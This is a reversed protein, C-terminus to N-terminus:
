KMPKKSRLGLIPGIWISYMCKNCTIFGLSFSFLQGLLFIFGFVHFEKPLYIVSEVFINKLIRFGFISKFTLANKLPLLPFPSAIFTIVTSFTETMAWVKTFVPSRVSSFLGIFTIFTSFRENLAWMENSMMSYVSPHFGIFTFFTPFIETPVCTENLMLSNVCTFFGIFTILTPPGETYTWGKNSMLSNMCCILEVLM